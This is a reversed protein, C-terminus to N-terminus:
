RLLELLRGVAIGENRPPAEPEEMARLWAHHVAILRWSMDFVPSGSSGQDTDTTYRVRDAVISTIEAETLSIKKPRGLPHQLIPVVDGPRIPVVDPHPIPTFAARERLRDLDIQLAALDDGTDHRSLRLEGEAPVPVRIGPRVVGDAGEEFGFVLTCARATAEDPWVHHNTVLWGSDLLFGTGLPRTESLEIMVVASARQVGVSLFHISRFTGERSLVRELQEGKDRLLGTSNRLSDSLVTSAPRGPSALGALLVDIAQQKVADVKMKRLERLMLVLADGGGIPSRNCELFDLDLEAQTRPTKNVKMEWTYDEPLGRLLRQRGDEDRAYVGTMLRVLEERDQDPLPPM